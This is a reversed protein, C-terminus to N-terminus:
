GAVIFGAEARASLVLSAVAGTFHNPPCLAVVVNFVLKWAGTSGQRCCYKPLVLLLPKKASVAPLSWSPM